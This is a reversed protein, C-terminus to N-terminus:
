ASEPVPVIDGVQLDANRTEAIAVVCGLSVVSLAAMLVGISISGFAGALPAAILPPIAGGLVGGLNYALGAGSYRCRADFTEPLLSGMPGYSIGLVAFTGALGIAFASASGSDVIPFLVVSWVAAAGFGILMVPRRGWRDCLVASGVTTAAMAAGGVIGAVLVVTRGHHLQATGYSTLYASAMYFLTFVGTIAGGGLLVQRWQTRLLVVLPARPVRQRSVVERFVPTEDVRLRVVLGVAILVASLLFPIRWGWSLFEPSDNGLTVSTLLFTVSSFIFAIPAGLQAFMGFFGRRGAPAHEAALLAAGAWEGGVAFGQILRLAVLAWPAASHWTEAGPLAGVALTALGMMLLTVVLTRKRGM